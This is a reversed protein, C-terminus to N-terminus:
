VSSWDLVASGPNMVASYLFYCERSEAGLEDAEFRDGARDFRAWFPAACIKLYLSKLSTM